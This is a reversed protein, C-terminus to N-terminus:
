FLGYGVSVKKGDNLEFKGKKMDLLNLNNINNNNNNNYVNTYKQIYTYVIGLVGIVGCVAYFAGHIEKLIGIIKRYSKYFDFPVDIGKFKLYKEFCFMIEKPKIHTTKIMRDILYRSLIDYERDNFSTNDIYKEIDIDGIRSDYVVNKDKDSVIYYDDVINYNVIGYKYQIFRNLNSDIKFKEQVREFFLHSSNLTIFYHIHLPLERKSKCKFRNCYSM